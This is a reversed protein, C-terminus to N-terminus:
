LFLCAWPPTLYLPFFIISWALHSFLLSLVSDQVSPHAEGCWALIDDRKERPRDAGPLLPPTRVKGRGPVGGLEGTCGGWPAGQWSGFSRRGSSWPPQAWAPGRGIGGGAPGPARTRSGPTRGPGARGRLEARPSGPQSHWSGPATVPSLTPPRPPAPCGRGGM